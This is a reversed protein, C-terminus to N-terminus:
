AHVEDLIRAIAKTVHTINAMGDVKRLNGQGAYYNVLPATQKNYV